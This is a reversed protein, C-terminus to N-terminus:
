KVQIYSKAIMGHIGLVVVAVAEQRNRRPLYVIDGSHYIKGDPNFNSYDCVQGDELFIGIIFCASVSFCVFLITIYNCCVICVSIFHM